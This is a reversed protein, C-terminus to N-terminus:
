FIINLYNYRGTSQLNFIKWGAISEHPLPIMITRKTKNMWVSPQVDTFDKIDETTYTLGIYWSNTSNVNPM